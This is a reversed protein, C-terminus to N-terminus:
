GRQFGLGGRKDSSSMSETHTPQHQHAYDVSSAPRTTHAVHQPMQDDERGHQHWAGFCEAQTLARASKGLATIFKSAAM